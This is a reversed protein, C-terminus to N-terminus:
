RPFLGALSYDDFGSRRIEIRRGRLERVSSIGMEDPDLPGDVSTDYSYRGLGEPTTLLDGVPRLLGNGDELHVEYVEDETLGSAVLVFGEAAAGGSRRRWSRIRGEALLDEAPLDPPPLRLAASRGRPELDLDEFSFKGVQGRLALSEGALRV